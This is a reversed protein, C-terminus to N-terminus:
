LINGINIHTNQPLHELLVGIVRTRAGADNKLRSKTYVDLEALNLDIMKTDEHNGFASMFPEVKDLETQLKKIMEEAEKYDDNYLANAVSNNIGALHEATHELRNTYVVSGTVLAAAIILATIFSKM